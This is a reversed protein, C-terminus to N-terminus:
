LLAKFMDDIESKTLSCELNLIAFVNTSETDHSSEVTFYFIVPSYPFRTTLLYARDSVTPASSREGPAALVFPAVQLRQRTCYGPRPDLINIVCNSYLALLSRIESEGSFEYCLYKSTSTKETINNQFSIRLLSYRCVLLSPSIPQCLDLSPPSSKDNTATTSVTASSLLRAEGLTKPDACPSPTPANLDKGNGNRIGLILLVLFCGFTISSAMLWYVAPHLM